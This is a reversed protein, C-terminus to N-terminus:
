TWTGVPLTTGTDIRVAKFYVGSAVTASAATVLAVSPILTGAATCTFVGRIQAWVGTAIGASVLSANTTATLAHSGQLSSSNNIQTTDAGFIGMNVVGLTATGAGLLLFQANGSTSSMGTIGFWCDLDWTGETIAVEGNTSWNFLKQASTTSTLAYTSSSRGYVYTATGGPPAAWTGDARLFNTTGGGSAPALGADGSTVLPLTADTGTDSALVRTAATYSLNTGSGGPPAAWTGDARLFNTTGGGSAPALGKAGSTVADLLATQAAADAAGVMSRGAATFDAVAAAGSGTFYPVKNAASTLGALAALEADYAQVAVGIAAPQIATDATAGQAATAYASAATTAATGLGLATRQASADAATLVARGAATSDSIESAPHTHATPADGVWMFNGDSAATDFQAKTGTIGVISTQDGSNTGTLGLDTKLTALTNVEPAGSGATKRYILSSTAMNAMKALSVAGSAITAAFSGAGSGTVDGTLTITQDGSNTGTLGLDAKLTVLSQVEPAGTGATKRYYVSATAMDALKALSVVGNDITWVTGSSAVTIDGKDGDTIGGGGISALSTWSTAGDGIKLLSNTQDYGPQGDALVPDASAWNAATDRRLKITM